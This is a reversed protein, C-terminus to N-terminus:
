LEDALSRKLAEKSTPIGHAKSYSDPDPGYNHEYWKAEPGCSNLNHRSGYCNAIKLVYTTEGTVIDVDTSEVNDPHICSQPENRGYLTSPWRNHCHKCQVCFRSNSTM